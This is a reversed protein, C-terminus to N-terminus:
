RLSYGEFQRLYNHGNGKVSHQSKYMLILLLM